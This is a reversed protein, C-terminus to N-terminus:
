KSQTKQFIAEPGQWIAMEMLRKHALSVTAAKQLLPFYWLCVAANAKM